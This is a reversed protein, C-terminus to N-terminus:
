KKIHEVSIAKFIQHRLIDFRMSKDYHELFPRVWSPVQIIKGNAMCGWNNLTSYPVHAIEAFDKQTLNLEKLRVCFEEKTM